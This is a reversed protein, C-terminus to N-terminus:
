GAPTPPTGRRVLLRRLRRRGAYGAGALAAAVVAFPLVAGIATFVASAAVRLGHWGSALGALFGHRRAAKKVPHRAPKPGLLTVSVTAYDTEGALARQQAQLAELSSEQQNIQEQVSLLDAISGARKLLAELQTIADQSSTVLSNVNAVQQTVDSAQESLSVETGLRTLKSLTPQYAVVPIKLQLSATPQTRSSTRPTAHESSVYGGQALVLSTAQSAAATVNGARLTLSATYVISQTALALRAASGAPAAPAPQAGSAAQAGAAPQGAAGGSVPAAPGAPAAAAHQAAPGSASSASGSPGAQSCGALLLTAGSVLGACCLATSRLPGRARRAKHTSDM